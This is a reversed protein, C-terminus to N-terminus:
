VNLHREVWWLLANVNTGLAEEMDPLKDRIASVVGAVDTREARMDDWRDASEAMAELTERDLPEDLMEIWRPEAFCEPCSGRGSCIECGPDGDYEGDEEAWRM